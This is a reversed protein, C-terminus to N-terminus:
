PLIEKIAREYIEIKRKARKVDAQDDNYQIKLSWLDSELEIKRVLMKGLALSLKGAEATNVALLKDTEKQILSLEFRIQKVKPFEETYDLLLEELGAERETKLLLIEAYAASSKIPANPKPSVNQTAGNKVKTQSYVASAPLLIFALLLIIAKKM